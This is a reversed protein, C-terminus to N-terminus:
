NIRIICADPMITMEVKNSLALKAKASPSTQNSLLKEVWKQMVSADRKQARQSAEEIMQVGVLLDVSVDQKAKVKKVMDQQWTKFRDVWAICTYRYRGLETVIFSGRWQDNVLFEMPVETWNPDSERRYLLVASLVDHGDAFIDAEVVVTDGIVRKIPFRGGDIEPKVGEIVIRVRGEEQEMMRFYRKVM